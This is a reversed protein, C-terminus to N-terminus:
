TAEQTGEVEVTAAPVPMGTAADRVRGSLTAGVSHGPQAVVPLAFMAFAVMGALLPAVPRRTGWSPQGDGPAAEM